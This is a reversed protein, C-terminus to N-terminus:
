KKWKIIKKGKRTTTEDGSDDLEFNSRKEKRQSTRVKAKGKQKQQIKYDKDLTGDKEGNGM